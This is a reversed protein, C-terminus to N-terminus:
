MSEPPSRSPPLTGASPLRLTKSYFLIWPAGRSKRSAASPASGATHPQIPWNRTYSLMTSPRQRIAFPCAKKWFQRGIPCHKMRRIPVRSIWYPRGHSASAAFRLRHNSPSPRRAAPANGDFSLVRFWTLWCTAFFAFGALALKIGHSCPRCHIASPVLRYSAVSRTECSMTAITKSRPAPLRVQCSKEGNSPIILIRSCNGAM